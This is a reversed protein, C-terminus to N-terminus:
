FSESQKKWLCDVKGCLEDASADNEILVDARRRKEEDNMQARIRKKATERDMGNRKALREIRKEIPADVVWIEDMDADMGSEFLLPVDYVVINALPAEKELEFMRKRIKPHLISELEKRKTENEFVISALERRNLSGDEGLIAKGFAHQLEELAPSGKETLEYCTADADIVFAGLERLRKSVTSKGAAISGTLGIRKM